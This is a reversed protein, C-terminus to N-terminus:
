GYLAEIETAYKAAIPRRKLKMTPTLEDGGPLWEDRLLTWRRVQEVQSLRANAADVESQVAGALAAPDEPVTAEPELVLLATIYRRADGIVCAQGILPGATKLVGEIASPAMNKGASNIIIEKKRDVITLYGADDFRGLDGTHLWGEADLAEATRAPDGRYGRMLQPARALVEGDDAVRLEVGSLAPGVTGVRQAGLPNVTLLGSSETLGWVECVPLGLSLFYDLTAPPIPAAGSYLWLIEDLGLRELVEQREAEPLAAPDTVGSAELASRL